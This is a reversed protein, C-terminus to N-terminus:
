ISPEYTPVPEADPVVAEGDPSSTPATPHLTSEHLGAERVHGATMKALQRRIHEPPEYNCVEIGRLSYELWSRAKYAEDGFIEVRTWGKAQAIDTKARIGDDTVDGYYYIADGTDRICTWDNLQIFAANGNIKVQRISDALHHMDSDYHSSLKDTKRLRKQEPTWEKRKPKQMDPAPRVYGARPVKQGKWPNERTREHTAKNFDSLRMIEGEVQKLEKILRRGEARRRGNLAVVRRVRDGAESRVGRREMASAAPGVKPLGVRHEGQRAYSRMDIRAASQEAELRRNTISEWEARWAEIHESASKRVDLERTKEGVGDPTVRRSTILMHVHHNRAEDGTVPRRDPAHVSWDVAVDHREALWAAYERCVQERGDDSLEHPLAGLWERAVTANGRVEAAEAADWLRQRDTAWEAGLPATVESHIVGRKRDYDHVRGTRADILRSGSRYAAAAVASRGSARNISQVVGYATAM